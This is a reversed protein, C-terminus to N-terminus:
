GRKTARALYETLSQLKGSAAARLESVRTTLATSPPEGRGAFFADWARALDMEADRALADATKWEEHLQRAREAM